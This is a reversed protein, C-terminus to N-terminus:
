RTPDNLATAAVRVETDPRTVSEPNSVLMGPSIAGIHLPQAPVYRLQPSPTSWILPTGNRWRPAIEM